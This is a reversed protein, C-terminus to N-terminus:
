SCRHRSHARRHLLRPLAGSDRARLLRANSSRGSRVRAEGRRIDARIRLGRGASPDREMEVAPAASPLQPNGTPAGSDSSTSEIIPAAQSAASRRDQALAVGAPGAAAAAAAAAAEAAEFEQQWDPAASGGGRLRLAERLSVAAAGNRGLSALLGGRRYWAKAFTQPSRCASSRQNSPARESDHLWEACPLTAKAPREPGQLHFTGTELSQILAAAGWRCHILRPLSLSAKDCSIALACDQEAESLCSLRQLTAARNSFLVAACSGPLAHRLAKTYTSLAEDLKGKKFASNGEAKLREAEAILLVVYM